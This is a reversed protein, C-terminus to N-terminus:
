IEPILGYFLRAKINETQIQYMNIQSIDHVPLSDIFKLINITGKKGQDFEMKFRHYRKNDREFRIRGKIRRGSKQKNGWKKITAM